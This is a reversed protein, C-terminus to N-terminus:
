REEPDAWTAAPGDELLGWAAIVRLADNRTRVGIKRYLGRLQTKVTNPSVGLSAAMGAVTDQRILEAAVARERTTLRPRGADVDLMRWSRAQGLTAVFGVSGLSEAVPLLADLARVPVLALALTQGSDALLTQLRRASAESHVDDGLLAVAGATLALHEARTRSSVSASPEGHLLRLAREPDRAALAVRARSVADRATAGRRLAREAKAIDGAALHALAWTHRVRAIASSSVARRARQAAVVTQIRQLAHEPRHRRLAILVEAHLLPAWHEITERHPDLISLRAEAEDVDGDELAILTRALQLFSGPYGTIWTEDWDRREAADATARAERIDGTLALTGAELAHGQLGSRYGQSDGVAVSRRFCILARPVDGAYLLSTGIQNCVTPENRGLGEREAVSMNELLDFGRRAAPGGDRGMVRNAASEIACLLARDVSETVSGGVRAGYAALFFYEIARARREATANTIMALLTALLPLHRLTTLSVGRFLLVVQMGYPLLEVWYQRVIDNALTWERCEVARALAPFPMERDFEWRAIMLTLERAREVPLGRRASAALARQVFPSLRFVARESRASSSWQGLGEREARHLLVSPDSEGTLQRALVVDVGDALALIEIFRAFHEDWGPRRLRLLSDVVEAVQDDSGDQERPELGTDHARRGGLMLLRAVGPAAGLSLVQHVIEDDETVGLLTAAENPTLALDGSALVRVDLTMQLGPEVFGNGVRTTARVSMGPLEHLLRLLGSVTEPDLNESEDVALCFEGMARLGRRLLEWPDDVFRFADPGAALPNRPDLRDFDALAAAVQRAFVAPMGAGASVRIWVGTRPTTGAWQAMAVTKGMGAPAALVVLPADAELAAILRPRPILGRPLRPIADLSM